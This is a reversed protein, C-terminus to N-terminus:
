WLDAREQMSCVGHCICKLHKQEGFVVEQNSVGSFFMSGPPTFDPSTLQQAFAPPEQLGKVGSPFWERGQEQTLLCIGRAVRVLAASLVSSMMRRNSIRDARCCCHLWYWCVPQLQWMSFWSEVVAHLHVTLLLTDPGM